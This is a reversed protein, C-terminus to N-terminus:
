RVACVAGGAGESTDIFEFRQRANVDFADAAENAPSDGSEEHGIPHQPTQNPTRLHSQAAQSHPWEPRNHDRRHEQDAYTGRQTAQCLHCQPRCGYHLSDEGERRAQLLHRLPSQSRQLARRRLHGDQPNITSTDFSYADGHFGLMQAKGHVDLGGHHTVHDPLDATCYLEHMGSGNANILVLMQAGLDAETSPKTFHAGVLWGDNMLVTVGMCLLLHPYCVEAPDQGTMDEDLYVAMKENRLPSSSSLVTVRRIYASRPRFPRAPPVPHRRRLVARSELLNPFLSSESTRSLSVGETRLQLIPHFKRPLPLM